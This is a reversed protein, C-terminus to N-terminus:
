IITLERSSNNFNEVGDETIVVLDEIRVGGFDPIYIGPEVSVVMGPELATGGKVSLTPAEHIQLGVGHGLGHGFYEGYGAKEIIERAIRDAEIGTMGARIGQLAERQAELVIDYIEKQRPSYEGVVVTRTMDSCYGEYRGGFDLTVFEGKEIVKDSAVGHPLASRWGSAVIFDFSPGSVGRKRLYFELELAVDKEKVGPKIYSKIYEFAQESIRTATRLLEIEEPNKVMRLHNVSDGLPHLNIGELKDKMRCYQMYTIDSDEFGLDRIDLEKMLENLKDLIDKPLEVVEFEPCQQKAQQIYRFDTIFLRKEGTILLYGTTGTFGSLYRRNVPSSIFVGDLGQRLIIEKVKELRRSLAIGGYNCGV